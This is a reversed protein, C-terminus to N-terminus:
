SNIGLYLAELDGCYRKVDFAPSSRVAAAVRDRLDALRAPDAALGRAIAAYDEPTSAILENLGMANLMSGTIRSSFARGALTVVPAGALVAEFSTTYGAYPFTDLCVDALKQRAIHDAHTNIQEFVLREPEVGRAKAETRLNAQTTESSAYLWLVANEEARLLDMWVDFVRPNLKWTNAFSAYIFADEPLGQSEPTPTRAVPLSLNPPHYCHPLRLVRESFHQEGGEPIVYTDALIYDMWPAGTTGPFGVFSIQVPAVRGAFLHARSNQTYGMLDCAIDVQRGRMWAGIQQDSMAFGDVFTDFAAAIRQREPSGDDPNLAVGVVEFRSRDHSEILPTILSTMPHRRFDASVYAIRVKEIRPRAAIVAPIEPRFFSACARAMRLQQAPDDSLAMGVMPWGPALGDDIRTPFDKWSARQQRLLLLLGAIDPPFPALAARKEFDAIAADIDNTAAYAFGRSELMEPWDPKLELARTAHSIADAHRNLSVLAGAANAWADPLDPQLQTAYVHCQLAEELKGLRLKCVGLNVFVPAFGPNLESARTLLTEATRLEGLAMRAVGLLHTTLFDDPEADLLAAYADAAQAWEGSLQLRM